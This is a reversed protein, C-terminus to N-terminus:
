TRTTAGTSSGAGVGPSNRRSGIASGAPCGSAGLPPPPDRVLIGFKQQYEEPRPNEGRARRYTMDLSILERLLASRAPEPADGLYEEIRPGEKWANEFRTCVVNVRAAQVPPLTPQGSGNM